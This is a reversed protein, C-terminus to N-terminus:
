KPRNDLYKKPTKADRDLQSTVPTPKDLKSVRNYIKPQKGDRDLQSTAPTPNDLKSVQNYKQPSKGLLGLATSTIKDLITM